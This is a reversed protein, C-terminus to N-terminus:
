VPRGKNQFSLPHAGQAVGAREAIERMTAGKYTCNAFVVESADMINDCRTERAGAEDARANKKFIIEGM